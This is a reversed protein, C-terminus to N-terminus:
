NFIEKKIWDMFNEPKQNINYNDIKKLKFDVYKNRFIKELFINNTYNYNSKEIKNIKKKILLLKCKTEKIIHYIAKHKSDKESLFIVINNNSNLKNICKKVTNKNEVMILQHKVPCISSEFFTKWKGPNALLSYKNKSNKLQDFIFMIDSIIDGNHDVIILTPEKVYNDIKDEFNYKLNVLSAPHYYFNYCLWSYFIIISLIFILIFIIIKNM